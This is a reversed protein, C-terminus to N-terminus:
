LEDWLRALAAAEYAAWPEPGQRVDGRHHEVAELMEVAGKAQALLQEVHGEGLNWGRRRLEAVAARLRREFGAFAVPTDVFLLRDAGEPGCVEVAFRWRFDVWIVAGGKEFVSRVKVENKQVV